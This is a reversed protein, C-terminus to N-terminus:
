ELIQTHTQQKSFFIKQVVLYLFRKMKKHQYINELFQKQINQSTVARQFQRIDFKPHTHLSIYVGDRIEKYAYPM